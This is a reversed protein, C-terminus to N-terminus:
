APDLESEQPQAEKAATGHTPSLCAWVNKDNKLSEPVLIVPWGDTPCTRQEGTPLASPTPDAGDAPCGHGHKLEYASLVRQCDKCAIPTWPKGESAEPPNIM